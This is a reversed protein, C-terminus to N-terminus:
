KYFIKEGTDGGRFNGASYMSENGQFNSVKLTKATANHEYDVTGEHQGTGYTPVYTLSLKNGAVNTIYFNRSISTGNYSILRGESTIEFEPNATTSNADKASNFYRGVLEGPNVATPTTGGPTTGDPTTGDGNTDEGEEDAPKCGAMSFGIVLILSIIGLFKFFNKM